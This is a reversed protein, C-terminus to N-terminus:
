PKPLVLVADSAAQLTDSFAASITPILPVHVSVKTADGPPCSLHSKLWTFFDPLASLMFAISHDGCQYSKSDVHIGRRTTAHIFSEVQADINMEDSKGYGIYYDQQGPQIDLRDLLELPNDAAVRDAAETGRGFVPQVVMWARIKMMGGYYEGVIEHSRYDDRLHATAPNFDAMYDDCAGSYRLNVAPSIGGVVKFKDSHKMGLSFAGFGGMSFGAIARGSRDHCVAFNADLFPVVDDMIFDAFRGRRSNVYWSGLAFWHYDGSLSGDPAAVVMPPLEGSSVACDLVPVVRKAFECEDDTYSHLWILLPYQGKPDYGPPLYVYLDRCECLASSYIRRDCGDNQTFDLLTGHLRANIADTSRHFQASAPAVGLVLWALAILGAATRNKTPM